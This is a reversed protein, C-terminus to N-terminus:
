GRCDEIVRGVEAWVPLVLTPAGPQEVIFRGRSFAIADLLPDRASLAASLAPQTTVSRTASTTRVTMATGLPRAPALAIRRTRRDCAITFVPSTGSGFVASTGSEGRVYRWAGPTLPWDRWDEALPAPAARPPAPREARVPPPPPPPASVCSAALVFIALPALASLPALPHARRMSRSHPFGRKHEVPVAARVPRNLRCRM